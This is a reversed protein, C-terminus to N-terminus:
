QSQSRIRSGRLFTIRSSAEKRQWGFWKQERCAKWSRSSNRLSNPNTLTATSSLESGLQPQESRWSCLGLQCLDASCWQVAQDLAGRYFSNIFHHQVESTRRKQKNFYVCRLVNWLGLSVEKWPLLCVIVIVSNMCFLIFFLHDHTFFSTFILSTDM